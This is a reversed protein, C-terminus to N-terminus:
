PREQCNKNNDATRIAMFSFEFAQSLRVTYSSSLSYLACIRVANPTALPQMFQLYPM